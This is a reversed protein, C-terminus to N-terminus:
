HVRGLSLSSNQPGLPPHGAYQLNHSSEIWDPWFCAFSTPGFMKVHTVDGIGQESPGYPLRLFMTPGLITPEATVRWAEDFFPEPDRLHELVHNAHIAKVSGDKMPWQKTLDFVMDINPGPYLDCNLRGPIRTQKSGAGVELEWMM